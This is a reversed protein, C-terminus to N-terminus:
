YDFWQNLWRVVEILVYYRQRLRKQENRYFPMWTVIRQIRSEYTAIQQVNKQYTVKEEPTWETVPRPITNGCNDVKTSIVTNQDMYQSKNTMLNTLEQDKEDIYQQIKDIERDTTRLFDVVVWEEFSELLSEVIVGILQGVNSGAGGGVLFGIGTGVDSPDIGSAYANVHFTLNNGFSYGHESDVRFKNQDTTIYRGLHADYYESIEYYLDIAADFELAAFKFRDGNAPSSEYAIQGFATYDIHDTVSGSNNIIDYGNM